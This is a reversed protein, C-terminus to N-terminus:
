SLKQTKTYSESLRRHTQLKVFASYPGSKNQQDGPSLGSQAGIMGADASLSRTLKRTGKESLHRKAIKSGRLRELLLDQENGRVEAASRTRERASAKRNIPPLFNSRLIKKTLGNSRRMDELSLYELAFDLQEEQRKKQQKLSLEELEQLKRQLRRDEFVNKKTTLDANESTLSRRKEAFNM